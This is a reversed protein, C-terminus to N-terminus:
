QKRTNLIWMHNSVRRYIKERENSLPIKSIWIIGKLDGFTKNKALKQLLTTKGCGTQGVILVKGEFKGNYPYNVDM